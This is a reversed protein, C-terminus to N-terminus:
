CISRYTAHSAKNVTKLREDREAETEKGYRELKAYRQRQQRYAFEVSSEEEFCGSFAEQYRLVFLNTANRFWYTRGESQDTSSMKLQARGEESEAVSDLFILEQARWKM